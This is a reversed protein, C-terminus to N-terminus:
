CRIWHRSSPLWFFFFFITWKKSLFFLEFSCQESLPLHIQWCITCEFLSYFRFSHLSIFSLLYILLISTIKKRWENWNVTTKKEINKHSNSKRQKGGSLFSLSLYEFIVFLHFPVAFFFISFFLSTHIGCRHHKKKLVKKNPKKKETERNTDSPKLNERAFLLIGTRWISCFSLFMFRLCEFFAGKKYEM